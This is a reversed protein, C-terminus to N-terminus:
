VSGASQGDSPDIGDALDDRLAKACREVERLAGRRSMNPDVGGYGLYLDPHEHQYKAIYDNPLARGWSHCANMNVVVALEVYDGEKLERYSEDISKAQRGKYWNEHHPSEPSRGFFDHAETYSPGQGLVTEETFPHTHIDIAGRFQM